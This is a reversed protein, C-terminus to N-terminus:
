TARITMRVKEGLDSEGFASKVISLEGACSEKSTINEALVPEISLAAFISITVIVLYRM